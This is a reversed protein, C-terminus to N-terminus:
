SAELPAARVFGELRAMLGPTNGDGDPQLHRLGLGGGGEGEGGGNRGGGGGRGGTILMHFAPKMVPPMTVAEESTAVLLQLALVETRHWRHM